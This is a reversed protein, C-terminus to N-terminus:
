HLIFPSSPRWNLIPKKVGVILHSIVGVLRGYILIIAECDMYIKDNVIILAPYGVASPIISAHGLIIQLITNGGIPQIILILRAFGAYAKIGNSVGYAYGRPGGPFDALQEWSQTTADFRHVDKM